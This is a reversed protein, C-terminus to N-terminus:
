KYKEMIRRAEELSDDVSATDGGGKPGDDKNLAIFGFYIVGMMALAFFVTSLFSKLAFLAFAAGVVTVCIRAIPRPIADPVMNTGAEVGDKGVRWATQLVKLFNSQVAFILPKAQFKHSRLNKFQRASLSTQKKLKLLSNSCLFTQNIKYCKPSQLSLFAITSAM